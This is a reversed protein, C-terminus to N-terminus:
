IPSSGPGISGVVRHSSHDASLPFTRAANELRVRRLSFAGGLQAGEIIGLAMAVDAAHHLVDDVVGPAAGRECLDDEAIANAVPLVRLKEDGRFAHVGALKQVASAFRVEGDPVDHGKGLHRFTGDNAVDFRLLTIAPLKSTSTTVIDGNDTMKISVLSANAERAPGPLDNRAGASSHDTDNRATSSRILREQLSTGCIVLVPDLPVGPWLNTTNSHVWYLMWMTTTVMLVNTM